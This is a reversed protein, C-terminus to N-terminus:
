GTSLALSIALNVVEALIDSRSYDAKRQERVISPLEGTVVEGCRLVLPSPDSGFLDWKILPFPLIKPCLCVM